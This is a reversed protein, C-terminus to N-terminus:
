RPPVRHSVPRRCRHPEGLIADAGRHIIVRIAPQQRPPLSLLSLTLRLPSLGPALRLELLGAVLPGRSLVEGPHLRHRALQLRLGPDLRPHRPPPAREATPGGDATITTVHGARVTERHAGRRLLREQDVAVRLRHRDRVVALPRRARPPLDGPN